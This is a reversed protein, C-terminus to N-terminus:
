HVGIVIFFFCFLCIMHSFVGNLLFVLVFIPLHNRFRKFLYKEAFQMSKKVLVIDVTHTMFVTESTHLVM